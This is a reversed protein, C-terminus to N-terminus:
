TNMNKQLYIFIYGLIVTEPFKKEVEFQWHLRNEFLLGNVWIKQKDPLSATEILGSLHLEVTSSVCVLSKHTHVTLTM